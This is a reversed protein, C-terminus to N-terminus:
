GTLKRKMFIAVEGDPLDHNSYYSLDVADIEFGAARYFRIAPVNTNQTEAVMVRLGATRAREALLDMLRLGIGQRWHSELVGFQWIWLTGNWRRPEAMAIGVLQDGDYAGLSLDHRFCGTYQEIADPGWRKVYPRDLTVLQLSITTRELTEDKSVIYSETSTYGAMIRDLDKQSLQRLTKIAVM